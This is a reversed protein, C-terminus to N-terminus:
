PTCPSSSTSHIWSIMVSNHGASIVGFVVAFDVLGKGRLDREETELLRMPLPVGTEKFAAGLGGRGPRELTEAM